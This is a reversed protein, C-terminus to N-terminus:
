TMQSAAYAVEPAPDLLWLWQGYAVAGRSVIESQNIYGPRSALKNVLDLWMFPEFYRQKNPCFM